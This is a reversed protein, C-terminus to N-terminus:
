ANKKSKKLFNPMIDWSEGAAIDKKGDVHPVAGHYVFCGMYLLFKERGIHPKVTLVCLRAM